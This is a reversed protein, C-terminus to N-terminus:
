SQNKPDVPDKKTAAPDEDEGSLSKRFTRIGKGLGSFLEPIKKGGGFLIFIALIILLLETSGLGFM